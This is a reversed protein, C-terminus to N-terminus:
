FMPGIGMARAQSILITSLITHQRLNDAYVKDAAVNASDGAVGANLDVADWYAFSSNNAKLAVGLFAHGPIIVIEPHLGVREVASALLATLEVCMGSQQKLVESPLKVEETGDTDSDNGNVAFPVSAQVYHMHYGLLADYIADVQDIVQQPTANDNYGVMGTPAPPPETSLHGAAMAVLDGVAKDNPTVWAAIQMSDSKTWQMLWRSHLVLPIDNLYYTHKNTDTVLVHLTTAFENTLTRLVQGQQQMPPVMALRQLLPTAHVQQTQTLSFGSVALSVLLNMPSGSSYEVTFLPTHMALYSPYFASFIASPSDVCIHVPPSDSCHMQGAVNAQQYRVYAQTGGVIYVGSLALLALVIFSLVIFKKGMNGTIGMAAAQRKGCHKEEAVLAVL